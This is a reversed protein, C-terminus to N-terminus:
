PRGNQPTGQHTTSHTVIKGISDNKYLVAEKGLWYACHSTSCFIPKATIPKKENEFYVIVYGDNSKAFNAIFNSAQEKGSQTASIAVVLLSFYILTAVLIYIAVTGAKDLVWSARESLPKKQSTKKLKSSLTSGWRKICDNSSIIAGLFATTLIAMAAVFSYAFPKASLTVFAIFGQFLTRDISIPFLTEEIGFGELFGQHYTLGLLYLGATVIPLVTLATQLAM